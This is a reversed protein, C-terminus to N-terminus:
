TLQESYLGFCSQNVRRIWERDQCAACASILSYVVTNCNCLEDEIVTINPGTYTHGLALEPVTFAALVLLFACSVGFTPTSVAM